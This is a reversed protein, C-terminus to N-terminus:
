AARRGRPATAQPLVHCSSHTCIRAQRVYGYPHTFCTCMYKDGDLWVLYSAHRDGLATVGRKQAKQSLPPKEALELLRRLMPTKPQLGHKEALQKLAKRWEPSNEALKLINQGTIQLIHYGTKWTNIRAQIGIDALAKALNYAEVPDKFLARAQLAQKGEHYNLWFIHDQLTAYVPHQKPQLRKVAAWKESGLSDLLKGYGTRYAAQLIQQALDKPEYKEENGVKYRLDYKHRRGDGLYWTLMGLPHQKAVQQALKKGERTPWQQEWSKSRITWTLTPEAMNLNLASLYIRLYGYRVAAWALVQWPQTTAMGPKGKTDLEDSARWGAQLYYLDQSSLCLLDPFEAEASVGYIPMSFIWTKRERRQTAIIYWNEDGPTIHLTKKARPGLEVKVKSNELATLLKQLKTEAQPYARYLCDVLKEAYDLLLYAKESPLDFVDIMAEAKEHFYKAQGDALNGLERCALQAKSYLEQLLGQGTRWGPSGIATGTDM